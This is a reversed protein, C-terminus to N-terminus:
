INDPKSSISDTSSEDGNEDKGIGDDLNIGEEKNNENTNIKFSILLCYGLIFLEACGMENSVEATCQLSEKNLIIKFLILIISIFVFFQTYLAMILMIKTFKTIMIIKETKKQYSKKLNKQFKRVYFAGISAWIFISVVLIILITTRISETKDENERSVLVLEVCLFVIIVLFVFNFILFIAKLKGKSLSLKNKQTFDKINLFVVNTTLIGFYIFYLNTFLLMTSSLFTYIHEYKSNSVIRLLHNLFRLFSGILLFVSVINWIKIKRQRKYKLYGKILIYCSFLFGLFFVSVFTKSITLRCDTLYKSTSMERENNIKGFTKCFLLFHKTETWFKKVHQPFGQTPNGNVKCGLWSHIYRSGNEDYQEKTMWQKNSQIDSAMKSGGIWTTYKREAPVHIKIKPTNEAWFTHLESNLRKTLGQFLSSGGSIVINEFMENQIETSCQMIGNHVMEQLTLYDNQIIKSSKELEKEKENEKEKEQEQEQEKKKIKLNFSTLLKSQKLIKRKSKFFLETTLFLEKGLSLMQGSPLEYKKTQQEKEPETIWEFANETLAYCYKEKIDRVIELDLFTTMEYGKLLMLERLFQNTNKTTLCKARIFSNKIIKSDVVCCLSTTTGMDIACGRTRDSAYLQLIQHPVLYLSPVSFTEFMIEATKERNLKPNTPDETLLIPHDKATAGIKNSFTYRWIKEMADWDGIIGNEIPNKLALIGRKCQAAEGVYWNRDNMGKEKPEGFLTPIIFRPADEGVYDAKLTYSGNDIVLPQNGDCEADSNYDSPRDWTTQNTQTNFYYSYNQNIDTFKKWHSSEM